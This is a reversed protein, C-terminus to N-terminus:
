KELSFKYGIGRITKLYCGCKGLKERIHKIHVDVARHTPSASYGWVRNLLDERTFVKEENKALIELMKFETPTLTILETGCNVRHKEIDISLENRKIIKEDKRKKTLVKVKATLVRPSFPKTVYNDAGAELGTIIDEESGKATLMILPINATKENAKLFKTISIGDIGPLMLDLIICDYTEKALSKIFDEGNFFKRVSFGERKLHFAVLNTIDKEDDVVAIVKM